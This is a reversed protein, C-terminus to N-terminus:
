HEFGTKSTRVSSDSGVSVWVSDGATSAFHLEWDGQSFTKALSAAVCYYESPMRELEKEALELADKLSVPPKEEAKWAIHRGQAVAGAILLILLTTVISRAM